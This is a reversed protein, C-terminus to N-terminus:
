NRVCGSLFYTDSRSTTMVPSHSMCILLEDQHQQPVGAQPALSLMFQEYFVIKNKTTKAAFSCFIRSLYL